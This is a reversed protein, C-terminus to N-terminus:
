GLQLHLPPDPGQHESRSPEGTRQDHRNFSRRWDFRGSLSRHGLRHLSVSCFPMTCWRIGVRHHVAEPESSHPLTTIAPYALTRLALLVAKGSYFRLVRKGVRLSPVFSIVM